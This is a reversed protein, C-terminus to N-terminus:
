MGTFGGARGLSGLASVLGCGCCFLAVLGPLMVALTAKGTTTRQMAAQGHITLVATWVTSVLWGIGPVIQLIAPGQAYAVVRFTGDFGRSGCGLMMSVLHLLGAQLFLAIAAGIPAAVLEGWWGGGSDLGMLGFLPMSTISSLVLGVTSCIWGYLFAESLGVPTLRAFFRKPDLSAQKWTEVLARWTGIENRRDWPALEDQPPGDGGYGYGGAGGYGHGGPGGYGGGWGGPPPAGGSGGGWAGPPVYAPPPGGTGQQAGWPQQPTGPGQQAGWPQQPTGPGQQGAAGPWAGPEGPQAWPDHAPSQPPPQAAPHQGEGPQVTRAEPAPAHAEPVPVDLEAGCHSCYQRGYRDTNFTKQCWSCKVLM